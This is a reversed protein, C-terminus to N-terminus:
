IGHKNTSRSILKTFTTSAYTEEKFLINFILRPKVKIHGFYQRLDM